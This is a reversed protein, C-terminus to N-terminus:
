LLHFHEYEGVCDGLYAHVAEPLVICVMEKGVYKSQLTIDITSVVKLAYCYTTYEVHELDNM